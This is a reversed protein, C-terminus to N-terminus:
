QGEVSAKSVLEYEGGGTLPEESARTPIPRRQRCVRLTPLSLLVLSLSPLIAGLCFCKRAGLSAYLIGGVM